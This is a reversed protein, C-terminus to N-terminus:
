ETVKVRGVVTAGPVAGINMQPDTRYSLLADLANDTMKFAKGDEADPDDVLETLVTGMVDRDVFTMGPGASDAATPLVEGDYWFVFPVVFEVDKEDDPDCTNEIHLVACNWGTELKSYDVTATVIDQGGLPIPDGVNDMKDASLWPIDRDGGDCDQEEIHYEISQFGPTWGTNEITIQYTDPECGPEPLSGITGPDATVEWECDDVILKIQREIPSGGSCIPTFTLNADHEGAPLSSADITVTVTVSAGSALGSGSPPNISTIRPVAGGGPTQATVSWDFPNQGINAVLYEIPDGMEGIGVTITQGAATPEVWMRCDPLTVAPILSTGIDTDSGDNEEGPAFVGADAATIWDFYIDQTGSTSGAGFQFGEPQDPSHPPSAIDLVPTPDEDMYISIHRTSSSSGITTLRFIHWDSDGTVYVEQGSGSKTEKIQGSPGAWMVGASMGAYSRVGINTGSAGSKALQPAL